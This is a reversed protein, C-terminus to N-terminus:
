RTSSAGTEVDRETRTMSDRIEDGVRRWDDRMAEQTSPHPYKYEHVVFVDVPASAGRFVGDILAQIAKPMTM